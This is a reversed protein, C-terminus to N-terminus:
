TSYMGVCSITVPNTEQTVIDSATNLGSMGCKYMKFDAPCLVSAKDITLRLQATTPSDLNGTATARNQLSTDKWQVPPTQGTTVSVVTEFITSSNRLLQIFFVSQFQSLETISCLISLDNKRLTVTPPLAEIQINQTFAISSLSLIFACFLEIKMM